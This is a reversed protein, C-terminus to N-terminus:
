ASLEPFYNSWLALIIDEIGDRDAGLVVEGDFHLLFRTQSLSIELEKGHLRNM